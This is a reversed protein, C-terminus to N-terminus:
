CCLHRVKYRIINAAQHWTARFDETVDMPGSRGDVSRAPVETGCATCKWTEGESLNDPRQELLWGACGSASCKVAQL